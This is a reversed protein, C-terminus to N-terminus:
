VTDKKFHHKLYKQLNFYTLEDDKSDLLKKLKQDPKIIRRNESHQLNNTTVYEHIKKSVETRAMRSGPERGFFVALDDSILTPKEFGSLKSSASKKKKSSKDVCKSVRSSIKSINKINNKLATGMNVWMQFNKNFEAIEATLSSSLSTKDVSGEVVEVPEEVVPAVVVPAVVPTEKPARKKVVKEIPAVSVTVTPAVASVSPKSTRVM